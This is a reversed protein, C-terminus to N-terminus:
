TDRVILKVVAELFEITAGRDQSVGKVIVTSIRRIIAFKSQEEPWDVIELKVAVDKLDDMLLNLLKYEVRLQLDDVM